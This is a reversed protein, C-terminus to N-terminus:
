NANSLSYKCLEIIMLQHIIFEGYTIIYIYEYFFISYNNKVNFIIRYDYLQYRYM